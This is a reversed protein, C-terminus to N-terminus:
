RAGAIGGSAWTMAREDIVCANVPLNGDVKELPLM